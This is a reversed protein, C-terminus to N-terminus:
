LCFVNCFWVNLTMKLDRYVWIIVVIIGYGNM